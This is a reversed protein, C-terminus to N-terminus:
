MHDILGPNSEIPMPRWIKIDSLIDVLFEDETQVAFIRKSPFCNVFDAGLEPASAFQRALHWYNFTDRFDGCIENVSSRYENYMGTYGLIGESGAGMQAPTMLAPSAFIEAKYIPRESLHAFMSWYYDYRSRRLMERHIGQSSYYLDPKIWCIGMLYGHERATFTAISDGSASIGRGAINGQPTTATESTQLVENVIINQKMGGLFTPLQLVDNRPSTGFFAKLGEIYRAGGRATRELYRQTQFALRMDSVDFTSAQSFDVVPQSADLQAKTLHSNAYTPATWAYTDNIDGNQLWTSVDNLTGVTASSPTSSGAQQNFSVRQYLATQDTKLLGVNVAPVSGSIGEIGNTFDIGGLGSLPLAVPDGRQQFPLSSTFYDHKWKSLQVDESMLNVPNELNENRKFENWILNYMIKGFALPLWASFDQNSADVGSNNLNHYGANVPFGFYDWLSGKADANGTKRVQVGGVVTTGALKVNSANPVWLPLTPTQGAENKGDGNPGGFIFTEWADVIEPYMKQMLVRTPCFWWESYFRLPTFPASVMPQVRIFNSQKIKAVDGPLVERFFFPVIAGFDMTQYREKKWHFMSRKLKAAPVSNYINM